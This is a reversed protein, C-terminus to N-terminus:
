SVLSAHITATWANSTKNQYKSRRCKFWLTDVSVEIKAAHESGARNNRASMDKNQNQLMSKETSCGSFRLGRATATHLRLRVGSVAAGCHRGIRRNTTQSAQSWTRVSIAVCGINQKIFREVSNFTSCQPEIRKLIVFLHPKVFYPVICLTTQTILATNYETHNQHKKVNLSIPTRNLM